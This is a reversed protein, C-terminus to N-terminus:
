GKDVKSFEKNLKNIKQKLVSIEKDKTNKDTKATELKNELVNVKEKLSAVSEDSQPTEEETVEEFDIDEWNSMYKDMYDPTTHSNNEEMKNFIKAIMNNYQEKLSAYGTLGKLTRMYESM